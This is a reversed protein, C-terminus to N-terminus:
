KVKQLRKSVAQQSIGLLRAALSQNGGARILAEEVLAQTTEEITPLQDPFIIGVTEGSPNRDAEPRQQAEIYEQFTRLTMVGKTHRSLADFVMSKLERINGPYPFTQLLPVLEKPYTPMKKNLEEAALSLFHALLLPIDELRKRLPPIHIHHVQLRFLLDKRFKGSNRLIDLHENTSAVIRASATKTKDMGIPRYESEQLLRLLKVQSSPSLDGIEDLLLTGSAAEEILGQRNSDAGTFAGKVHGFLTDSFINDDLGAVNVSVFPGSLGSLTHVARAILEKGVGTEGTILVAQSTKSILELYKFISFMKRSRTKIESFADPAVAEESLMSQKLALNEQQLASFHLANVVTTRLREAEVPKVLYDFAGQKMCEVVTKPEVAVTAIIVPIDPFESVIKVLLDQGNIHPMILDLLIVSAHHKQILAMAERSDSCTMIHDFGAMRLTTDVALLIAEEDDILVIPHEPKLQKNM